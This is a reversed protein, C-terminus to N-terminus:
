GGLARRGVSRSRYGVKREFLAVPYVLLETRGLADRLEAGSRNSVFGEASKASVMRVIILWGRKWSPKGPYRTGAPVMKVNGMKLSKPLAHQVTQWTQGINKSDARAM